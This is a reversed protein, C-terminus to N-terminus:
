GANLAVPPFGLEVVEDRLMKRRLLEDYIPNKAGGFACDPRLIKPSDDNM